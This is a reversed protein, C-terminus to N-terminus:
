PPSSAIRAVAERSGLPCVVWIIDGHKLETNSEPNTIRIGGREIGVVLGGLTERVSADRITRGDLYSGERILAAELVYEPNSVTDQASTMPSEALLRLAQTQQDSGLAVLQDSPLLIRDPDPAIISSGTRNIVLVNAGTLGRVNVERLTKGSLTSGPEISFADLHANWPALERFPLPEARLARYVLDKLESLRARLGSKQPSVRVRQLALEYRSLLEQLSLPTVGKLARAAGTSGRIMYPTTFSTVVAVSVALPYLFESTVGLSAGLSAIIFSFEGVQAMSFGVQVSEESSRGAILAGLGTAITKGIITVLTVILVVWYNDALVSLNFLMGVSVFFIAGFLNRVPEILHEIKKGEPSEALIAGALFAGLAASYGLWDSLLVLGLCIGLSFILLAEADLWRRSMKLIRPIFYIGSVIVVPLILTLKGLAALLTFGQIERTIAITSLAALILIAVLDEVILVGFVTQAFRQSKLKLEDFAKIIMTTSSIALIGGLFVSDMTSWGLAKGCFIGIMGMIAVEILAITASAFGTQLLRPFSFELGLSFLLFVIGLEALIQINPTDTVTPIWPVHPGALIGVLIYGLVVPQGLRRFVLSIVGALGLIIALDKLLLPLHM